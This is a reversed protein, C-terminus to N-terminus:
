CVSLLRLVRPIGDEDTTDYHLHVERGRVREHSLPVSPQTTISCYRDTKYAISFQESYRKVHELILKEKNTNEMFSTPVQDSPRRSFEQCRMVKENIQKNRTKDLSEKIPHVRYKTKKTRLGMWDPLDPHDYQVEDENYSHFSLVEHKEEVVEPQVTHYRHVKLIRWSSLQM